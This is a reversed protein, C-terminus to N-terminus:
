RLSSLLSEAEKIISSKDKIPLACIVSTYEPIKKDKYWLLPKNFLKKALDNCDVGLAELSYRMKLPSKCPKGKKLQCSRCLRCSGTSLFKSNSVKELEWVLKDIRSKMVANALRVKHYDLYSTNSFQNLNISFMLVFLQEYDRIYNYFDPTRPPCSYKKNYNPCGKKCLNEFCKKDVKIKNKNIFDYYCNITISHKPTKVNILKM